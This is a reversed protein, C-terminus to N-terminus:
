RELMEAPELHFVISDGPTTAARRFGLREFVSQSALNEAKVIGCIRGPLLKRIAQIGVGVLQRGWGRGRVIEDLSYDIRIEDNEADFRIQGVPLSNAELVFLRSAPNRLKGGFWAQHQPWAIPATNFSNRRVTPDNAWAYFLAVDEDRAPRLALNAGRTPCLVEAVRRAGLGDVQLQNRTSLDLLEQPDHILEQLSRALDTATVHDFHGAYRVLSAQGLAESAPRQNQAISVVVSPVGMCMREWMTGGGAGIALDAHALLDALQPVTGHVTTRSRDSALREIQKRHPNSAGVVVDVDLNELGSKSLAQLVLGTTNHPDAGGLFVLVRKAVGSHNRLTRRRRAYEPQLLAYRVGILTLCGDPVRGSYRAGNELAFNQDLLVDCDHPRNELDDIVMLKHAHPRMHTEWEADLGYSDVVLWDPKEGKLVAATELADQAQTVGLWAGYDTSSAPTSAGPRPLRAVPVAREDLLRILNGIHERCVFRVEAGREGLTEALALCRMLHGTGMSVSADARFVVKV